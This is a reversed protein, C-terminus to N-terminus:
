GKKGTGLSRIKGTELGLGRETFFGLIQTLNSVRMSWYCESELDAVFSVIPKHQYIGALYMCVYVGM